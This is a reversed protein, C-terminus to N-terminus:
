ARRLSGLGAAIKQNPSKENNQNQVKPDVKGGGPKVGTGGNQKPSEFAMPFTTKMESVLQAVTMFGGKGDSRANGDNDVVRVVYKGNDDKIMKTAKHVHPMLFDLGKEVVKAEAMASAAAGTIMYEQLTSQMAQNDALAAKKIEEITKATDAKIKDLDVKVEKGNKVAGQLETVKTKIIEGLKNADDGPELGLETMTDIVAKLQHRRAADADNDSKKRTNASKLAKNVGVYASVIGKFEDKVKYNQNAKDEVYASRYEEPVVDVTQVTANAEFDWEM